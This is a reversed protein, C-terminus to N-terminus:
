AALKQHLSVSKKRHSSRKKAKHKLKMFVTVLRDVTEEELNEYSGKLTRQAKQGRYGVEILHDVFEWMRYLLVHTLEHLLLKEDWAKRDKKNLYIELTREGIDIDIMATDEKKFGKIDKPNRVSCRVRYGDLELLELWKHITQMEKRM